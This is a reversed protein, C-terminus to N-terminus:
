RDRKYKELLDIEVYGRKASAKWGAMKLSEILGSCMKNMLSVKAMLKGQSWRNSALQRLDNIVDISFVPLSTSFLVVDVQDGKDDAAKIIILQKGHFDKLIMRATRGSHRTSNPGWHNFYQPAIQQVLKDDDLTECLFDGMAGLFSPSNRRSNSLIKLDSM